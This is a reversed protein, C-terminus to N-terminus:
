WSLPLEYLGYVFSDFRFSLEDFPVALRLNPFREILASLATEMEVRALSKGLCQHIGHGFAVHSSADRRIDLREAHPFAAEDHNASPLAFVVGEGKAIRQGGIVLDDVAVRVMGSQSVSLFRLLEDVASRMLGPDRRLAELQDPNRLLTLVALGIMNATTDHGAVLLLRAMSSLEEVSLEGSAVYRGAVQSLLDDGPTRAKEASLRDLYASLEGYATAIEQPSDTGSAIIKSQTQFFDHDAYPVGLMTCIVLSPLPLAFTDIFDVPPSGRDIDDLLADVTKRIGPRQEQIKRLTFEPTLMRRLVGHEPDDMRLFSVRSPGPPLPVVQPLDPNRSDASLRPDALAARVDAHRTLLWPQSGLPLRVKCPPGQRLAAYGPPPLLPDTRPMPFVQLDADTM